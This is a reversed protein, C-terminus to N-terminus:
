CYRKSVQDSEREGDRGNIDNNSSSSAEHDEEADGNLYAGEAWVAVPRQGYKHMSEICVDEEFRVKEGLLKELREWSELLETRQSEPLTGMKWNLYSESSSFNAEEGDVPSISRRRRRMIFGEVGAHLFYFYFLTFQYDKM